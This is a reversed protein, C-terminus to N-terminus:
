EESISCATLALALSCSRNGGPAITTLVRIKEETNWHEVGDWFDVLYFREGKEEKTQVIKGEVFSTEEPRKAVVVAGIVLDKPRPDKDVVVAAIDNTDYSMRLGPTDVVVSLFTEQSSLVYGADYNHLNTISRALVRRGPVIQGEPVLNYCTFKIFLQSNQM